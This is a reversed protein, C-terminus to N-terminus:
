KFQELSFTISARPKNPIAQHYLGPSIYLVENQYLTFSFGDVQWVTDGIIQWIWLYQGDDKHYPFTISNEKTSVYLGARAYYDSKQKQLFSVVTSCYEHTQLNGLTFGGNGLDRYYKEESSALLNKLIMWDWNYNLNHSVKKFGIDFNNLDIM